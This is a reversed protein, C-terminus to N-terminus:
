ISDHTVNKRPDHLGILPACQATLVNPLAVNQFSLSASRNLAPQLIADNLSARRVRRPRVRTSTVSGKEAKM